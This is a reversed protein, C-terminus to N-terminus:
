RSPISPSRSAAGPDAEPGPVEHEEMLDLLGATDDLDVGPLLGDGDGTPLEVRPWRAPAQHRSIESRLADAMVQTLTRHTEAALRKVQRMLEEPLRVTTRM